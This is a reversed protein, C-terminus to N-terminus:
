VIQGHDEAIEAASKYIHALALFGILFLINLLDNPNFTITVLRAGQPLHYTLLVSILPRTAMDLIEASLGFIGLLRLHQAADPTFIRGELFGSFLKWVACCAAAVLLWIGFHVLFGAFRQWDSLLSLDARYWNGYHRIVMARDLWLTVIQYLVWGAYVLATFRILQCLWGIKQRLASINDPLAFPTAASLMPIETEIFRM